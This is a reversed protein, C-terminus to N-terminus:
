PKEAVGRFVVDYLRKVLVGEITPKTDMNAVQASGVRLGKDQVAFDDESIGRERKKETM